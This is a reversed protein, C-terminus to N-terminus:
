IMNLVQAVTICDPFKGLYLVNLTPDYTLAHVGEGLASSGIAPQHFDLPAFARLKTDWVIVNEVVIETGNYVLKKSFRGAIIVMTDNITVIKADISTFDEIGDQMASYMAM